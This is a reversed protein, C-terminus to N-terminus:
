ACVVVVTVVVVTAVVVVAVDLDADKRSVDFDGGFVGPIGVDRTGGVAGDQVVAGGTSSPRVVNNSTIRAASGFWDLAVTM